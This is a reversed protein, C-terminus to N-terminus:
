SKPPLASMHKFPPTRGPQRHHTGNRHLMPQARCRSTIDQPRMEGGTLRDTLRRSNM